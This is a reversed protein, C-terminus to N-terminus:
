PGAVYLVGDSTEALPRLALQTRLTEEPLATRQPLERFYVAVGQDGALAEGMASLEAAFFPNATESMALWARPFSAAHRGTYLYIPEPANSFLPIGAPLEEVLRLTESQRWASGTFGIGDQANQQLWGATRGAGVLVLLVGAAAAAGRVAPGPFVRLTIVGLYVLGVIAALLLPSLIRDDLPTNADFLSISAALALVYSGAFLAELRVFPPASGAVDARRAAWAVVAVWLGLVVGFLVRWAHNADPPLHLWGSVTYLAEWAQARSVLHLGVSRGTDGANLLWAALPAAAVVAWVLARGARARRAGDGLWLIGLVGVPLLAVGVYRTLSALAALGASAVFWGGDPRGIWRALAALSALTLFLFLPESWVMAQLGVLAPSALVLLAGAIGPWTLEPFSWALALGMLAITAGFLLANVIRAASWPGSALGGTFALIAPFLPPFQGGIRERALLRDAM